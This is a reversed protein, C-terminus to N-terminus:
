ELGLSLLQSDSLTLTEAFVVHSLDSDEPQLDGQFNSIVNQLRLLLEERSHFRASGFPPNKPGPYVLVVYNAPSDGQGPVFQIVLRVSKSFRWDRKTM